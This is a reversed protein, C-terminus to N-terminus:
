SVLTMVLAVIGLAVAVECMIVGIATIRLPARYEGSAYHGSRRVIAALRTADQRADGTPDRQVWYSRESNLGLLVFVVGFIALFVAFMWVVLAAVSM